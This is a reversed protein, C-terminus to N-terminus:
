FQKNLLKSMVRSTKSQKYDEKKDLVVFGNKYHDIEDFIYLLDIEIASKKGKISYSSSLNLRQDLLAIFKHSSSLNARNDFLAFMNFSCHLADGVHQFLKKVLAMRSKFSMAEQRFPEWFHSAFTTRLPEKDHEHINLGFDQCLPVLCSHFNCDPNQYGFELFKITKSRVQLGYDDLICDSFLVRLIIYIRFISCVSCQLEM